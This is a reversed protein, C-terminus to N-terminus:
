LALYKTQGTSLIWNSSLDSYYKNVYCLIRFFYDSIGRLTCDLLEKGNNDVIRTNFTRIRGEVPNINMNSFGLLKATELSIPLESSQSNFLKNLELLVKRVTYEAPIMQDTLPGYNGNSAGGFIHYDNNEDQLM